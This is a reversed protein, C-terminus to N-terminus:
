LVAQLVRKESHQGGLALEPSLRMSSDRKVSSFGLSFNSAVQSVTLFRLTRQMNKAILQRRLKELRNLFFYLKDLNEKFTEFHMTVNIVGYEQRDEIESLTEEIRSLSMYDLAGFNNPVEIIKTESSDGALDLPVGSTMTRNLHNGHEIEYPACFRDGSESWLIEIYRQLNSNSWTSASLNSALSASSDVLIGLKRCVEFIEPPAIWGGARFSTVTDIELYEKLLNMSKSVIRKLDSRGYSALMTEHGKMSTPLDRSSEESFVLRDSPLVQAAKVLLHHPHVHLGVESNNKIEGRLFQILIEAKSLTQAFSNALFYTPCVFHTIPIQGLSGLRFEQLARIQEPSIEIGEWDITVCVDIDAQIGQRWSSM